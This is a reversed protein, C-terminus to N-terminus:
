VFILVFQHYTKKKLMYTGWMQKLLVKTLCRFVLSQKLWSTWFLNRQERDEGRKIHLVFQIASRAVLLLPCMFVFCNIIQAQCNDFSASCVCPRRKLRLFTTLTYRITTEEDNDNNAYQRTTAFLFISISHKAIVSSTTQVWGTTDTNHQSALYLYIAYNCWQFIIIINQHVNTPAIANSQWSKTKINPPIFM